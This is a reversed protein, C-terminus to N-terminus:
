SKEIQEYTSTTEVHLRDSLRCSSVDLTSANLLNLPRILIDVSYM